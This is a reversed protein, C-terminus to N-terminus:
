VQNNSQKSSSILLCMGRAVPIVTGCILRNIGHLPYPWIELKTFGFGLLLIGNHKTVQVQVQVQVWRGLSNLKLGQWGIILARSSLM